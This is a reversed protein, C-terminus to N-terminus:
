LGRPGRHHLRPLRGRRSENCQPGARHYLERFKPVPHGLFLCAFVINILLGPLAAWPDTIEGLSQNLRPWFDADFWSECGKSLQIIILGILGGVVCSPLYLKQILRIKMRLFHGLALVVCIIIFSLM